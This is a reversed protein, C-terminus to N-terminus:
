FGKTESLTYKTYRTVPYQALSFGNERWSFAMLYFEQLILRAPRIM